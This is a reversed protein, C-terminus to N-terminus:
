ADLYSHNSAHFYDCLHSSSPNKIAFLPITDFILSTKSLRPALLLAGLVSSLLRRLFIFVWHQYRTAVKPAWEFLAMSKGHSTLRRVDPQEPEAPFM